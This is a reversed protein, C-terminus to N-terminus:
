QPWEEFEMVSIFFIFCAISLRSRSTRTSRNGETADTSGSSWSSTNSRGAALWYSCWRVTVFEWRATWHLSGTRGGLWSARGSRRIM